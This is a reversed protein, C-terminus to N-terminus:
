GRNRAPNSLTGIGEITIDITQGDVFGGLGAPTGTLIIDGPLLTWVDSAFAIIEPISHIMDRTNGNRRPEGDVYTQIELASIDLETEIVPGIPCFTDYGKARAWQGDSFMVDRASVDNAITYGFVYDAYDAAKVQKAVRGIVIALEGEHVVRGEVPPIQITDGPGVIATNPKLFLLPTAPGGDPAATVDAEDGEEAKPSGASDSDASEVPASDRYNLGVCVVKSRPIVPALLKVGDLAVREGTTDFGSFMPDGSLVVLDDGDVIGYRPDGETSFRAIKM